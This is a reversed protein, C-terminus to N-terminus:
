VKWGGDDGRRWGGAAFGGGDVHVTSGTVFRSLDSALFVAAGTVVAVRDNLTAAGPDLAM